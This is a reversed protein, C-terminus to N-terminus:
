PFTPPPATEPIRREVPSPVSGQPSSSIGPFSSFPSPSYPDPPLSDTPLPDAVTTDHPLLRLSPSPPGAPSFPAGSVM